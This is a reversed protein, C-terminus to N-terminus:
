PQSKREFLNFDTVANRVADFAEELPPKVAAMAEHQDLGFAFIGAALGVLIAAAAALRAYERKMPVARPLSRLIRNALGRPPELVPQTRLRAEVTIHLRCDECGELHERTEECNM